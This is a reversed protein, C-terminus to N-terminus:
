QMALLCHSANVAPMRGQNAASTRRRPRAQSTAGEEVHQPVAAYEDRTIAGEAKVVNDPLATNGIDLLLGGVALHELRKRDFGLHRGFMVAWVATATARSYQRDSRKKSFVTWAMANPNRLISRILPTVANLVKEIDVFGAQGARQYIRRYSKACREYAKQAEPAEKRVTSTIDYHGAAKRRRSLFNSLGTRVIFRHLWRPGNPAPDHEGLVRTAPGNSAALARITKEALKGREIEVYVQSCFLQLQEIEFKDKIVFGQFVFPTELWPRDLMGVYMGISLNSTSMPIRTLHL